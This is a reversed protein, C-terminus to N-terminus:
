VTSHSQQSPPITVIQDSLQTGVRPLRPSKGLTVWLGLSQVLLEVLGKVQSVQGTEM